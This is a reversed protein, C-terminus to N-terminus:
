RELFYPPAKWAPRATDNALEIGTRFALRAIKAMTEFNIRETEDAPTHYQPHFGSFFFMAPVQKAVFNLHDSYYLLRFHPWPFPSATIGVEAALGLATAELDGMEFDHLFVTDGPARGVMDLNLNAVTQEFPVVPDDGYASSGFLGLEEGSFWVFAVSRKPRADEPLAAFSRAIALLAASGSANDDAGNYISDGGVPHGTGVHDIHAGYVVYEDRLERDAGPLVAILNRVSALEGASALSLEFQSNPIDFSVPEMSERSQRQYAQITGGGLLRNATEHSVFTLPPVMSHGHQDTELLAIPQAAFGMLFATAPPQDPQGYRDTAYIVAKAGHAYAEVAKHLAKDYGFPISMDTDWPAGDMIIVAKGAVDTGAYDDWSHEPSHIGFGVFALPASVPVDTATVGFVLQTANDPTLEVRTDGVIAVASVDDRMREHIRLSWSQFYGGDDGKPELGIERAATAVYQLAMDLGPSPTGRGGLSDAALVALDRRLDEATAREQAQELEDQTPPRTAPACGATVLLITGTIVHLRSM